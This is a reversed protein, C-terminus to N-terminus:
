ESVDGRWHQHHDERGRDHDHDAGSAGQGSCTVLEGLVGSESADEDAGQEEGDGGRKGFETDVEGCCGRVGGVQGDAIEEARAHGVHGDEADDVQAM